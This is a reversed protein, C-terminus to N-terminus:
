RSPTRPPPGPRSRRRPRANEEVVLGDLTAESPDDDSSLIVAARAGLAASLDGGEEAAEDLGRLEAAHFGLGAQEVRHAGRERVATDDRKGV